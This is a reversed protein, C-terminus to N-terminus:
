AEKELLETLKDIDEPLKVFHDAGEKMSQRFYQPHASRSVAIVLPHPERQAVNRLLDMGNGAELHVDVIVVAPNEAAIFRFADDGSHFQVTSTVRKLTSLRDVIRDSVLQSDCVVLVTM